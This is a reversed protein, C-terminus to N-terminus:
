LSKDKLYAGLKNFSKIKKIVLKDNLLYDSLSTRDEGMHGRSYDTVANELGKKIGKMTSENHILKTINDKNVNPFYMKLLEIAGNYNFEDPGQKNYSEIYVMGFIGRFYGFVYPDYQLFEPLSNKDLAARSINVNIFICAASNIRKIKSKDFLGFM